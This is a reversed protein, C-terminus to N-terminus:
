KEIKEWDTGNWITTTDLTPYSNENYVWKAWGTTDITVTTTTEDDNEVEYPCGYEINKNLENVFAQAKMQEDTYQTGIQTTPSGVAVTTTPSYYLNLVKDLEVANTSYGLFAASKIWSKSKINAINYINAMKIGFGTGSSRACSGIIGGARMNGEIDAYNCTNYIEINPNFGGGIIGGTGCYMHKDNGTVKRYNASNTISVTGGHMHGVIGGASNNIQEGVSNNIIEGYNYCNNISVKTASSEFGIVGGAGYLKTTVDVYNKVNEVNIYNTYAEGIIGGAKSNSNINGSVTLNKIGIRKEESGGYIKGFLGGNTEVKEYINKIEYNKGDFIGSFDGGHGGIPVFGKGKTLQEKLGTTGNGGLYVDYETTKPDIYSLDSNFDLTKGLVYNAGVYGTAKANVQKSVFVLDEISMIIFPEEETGKGDLQGPNKDFVIELPGEVNGDSDVDYYRNSKEFKIVVTDGNDIATAIKEGLLRM